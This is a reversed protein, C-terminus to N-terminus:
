LLKISIQVTAQKFHNLDQPPTILRLSSLRHAVQPGYCYPYTRSIAAGSCIPGTHHWLLHRKGTAHNIIQVRFKNYQQKRITNDYGYIIIRGEERPPPRMNRRVRDTQRDTQGDTQRDTRGTITAMPSTKEAGSADRRAM